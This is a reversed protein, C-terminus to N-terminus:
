ALKRLPSIRKTIDCMFDSGIEKWLKRSESSGEQNDKKDEM